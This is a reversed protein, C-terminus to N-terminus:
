FFGLTGKSLFITTGLILCRLLLDDASLGIGEDYSLADIFLVSAFGKM